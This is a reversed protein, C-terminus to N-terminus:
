FYWVLVGTGTEHSARGTRALLPVGFALSDLSESVVHAPMLCDRSQSALGPMQTKREKSSWNRKQYLVIEKRKSRM